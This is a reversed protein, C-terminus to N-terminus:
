IDFCDRAHCLFHNTTKIRTQLSLAPLDKFSCLICGIPRHHQVMFLVFVLCCVLDAQPLVQHAVVPLGM